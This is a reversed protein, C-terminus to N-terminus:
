RDVVEYRKVTRRDIEVGLGPGHPVRVKGNSVEIPAVLLEERLPNASTDLEMQPPHIGLHSSPTPLAAVLQLGAALALASGHMHPVYFVGATYAMDAIRRCETIGGAACTEPQVIDVARADFLRRFGYRTFECEGGAIFMPLAAKVACYGEVDEPPVPEEFWFVDYRSLERGIAIAASANFARNADVMLLADKGIAERVASVRQCDEQWPVVGIKIKVGRFGREKALEEARLQLDRLTEGPYYFLGMSYVEVEQRFGGGLLKYIPMGLDKGLIDWLAIDIASIAAVAIGKRGYCCIKGYMEHWLVNIDSSDRGLLMPRLTTDIVTGAAAPWGHAEGWGVLGTDTVVEVLMADRTEYLGAASGMTHELRFQLLHTCVDTIKM